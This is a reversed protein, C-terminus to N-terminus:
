HVQHYPLELHEQTSDRSCLPRPCRRPPCENNAGGVQDKQPIEQHEQTSDRSYLPGPCREPPNGNISGDTPFVCVSVSYM